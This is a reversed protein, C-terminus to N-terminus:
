RQALQARGNADYAPWYNELKLEKLAVTLYRRDIWQDVEFKSRSLKFDVSDKVAERYRAVLFPDFLPSLRSKLEPGFEERWHEVPTGQLAWIKLTEDYNAPDSAWQQTKVLATVVKQTAEPYKAAFDETVLVGSQRTFVPSAGNSSYVIRAKGADRLRLLEYGGFSADIDKTILAAQSSATDLNISRIDRETLNNAKLVRNIPLQSNTGKFIAVRKGRLDAISKIPSDPPVALYINSRVGSALILRTKLGAAKGVLSPLDGQFAFDLQKNTLAENVAPGAGKFFYWEVKTNSGKFADEIWGKQRAIGIGGLSYVPPSGTAPAAIGIRLVAPQTEAQAPTAAILALGTLVGALLQTLKQKM